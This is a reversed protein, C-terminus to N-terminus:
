QQKIDLLNPQKNHTVYHVCSLLCVFLCVHIAESEGRTKHSIRLYDECGTWDRLLQEHSRDGPFPSQLLYTVHVYQIFVYFLVCQVCITYYYM